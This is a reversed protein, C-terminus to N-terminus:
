RPAEGKPGSDSCVEEVATCRLGFARLACKLFRKLRTAAEATGPRGPHPREPDDHATPKRETGFPSHSYEVKLPAHNKEIHACADSFKKEEQHTRVYLFFFM